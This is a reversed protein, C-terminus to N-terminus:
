NKMPSANRSCWEIISNMIEIGSQIVGVSKTGDYGMSLHMINYGETVDNVLKKSRKTAAKKYDNIDIRQQEHCSSSIVHFDHCIDHCRKEKLPFSSEKLLTSLKEM